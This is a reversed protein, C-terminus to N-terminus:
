TDNRNTDHYTNGEITKLRIGQLLTELFRNTRLDTLYYQRSIIWTKGGDDSLLVAKLKIPNQTLMQM